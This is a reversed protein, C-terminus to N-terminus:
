AKSELLWTNLFIGRGIGVEGCYFFKGKSHGGGKGKSKGKGKGKGKGKSKVIKPVPGLM